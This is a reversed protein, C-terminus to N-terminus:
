SHSCEEEQTCVIPDSTQHGSTSASRGTVIVRVVPCVRAAAPWGARAVSQIILTSEDSGPPSKATTDVCSVLFDPIHVNNSKDLKSKSICQTVQRM